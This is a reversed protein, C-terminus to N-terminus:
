EEDLLARDTRNWPRKKRVWFDYAELSMRWMKHTVILVTYLLTLLLVIDSIHVGFIKLVAVGAPPAVKAGAELWTEVQHNM